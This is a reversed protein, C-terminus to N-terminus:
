IVNKDKLYVNFTLFIENPKKGLAASILLVEKFTPEVKGNEIRNYRIRPIGTSEEMNAQTKGANKRAKLLEFNVEKM